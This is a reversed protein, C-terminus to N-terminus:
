WIRMAELDRHERRRHALSVEQEPTLMPFSRIARLLRALDERGLASLNTVAM